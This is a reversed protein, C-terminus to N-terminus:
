KSRRKSDKSKDHSINRLKLKIKPLPQEAPVEPPVESPDSPVGVSVGVGGRSKRRKNTSKPDLPDLPPHKHESANTSHGLNPSEHQGNPDQKQYKQNKNQKHGRQHKHMIPVPEQHDDPDGEEEDDFLHPNNVKDTADHILTAYESEDQAVGDKIMKKMLESEEKQAHSSSSSTASLDVQDFPSISKDISVRHVTNLTNSLGDFYIENVNLNKSPDLNKQKLNQLSSMGEEDQEVESLIEGCKLAAGDQSTYEKSHAIRSHNLFGQASSFNSRNCDPCTLKVIVGDTRRYLCGLSASPKSISTSPRLSSTTSRTRYSYKPEGAYGEELISAKPNHSGDPLGSLNSYNASLSRNLLNYYKVTFDNPENELSVLSPVEFFKRLTIMQSECKGIEEKTLSLEKHKLRIELDIQNTIIDRLKEIPTDQLRKILMERDVAMTEQSTEEDNNHEIPEQVRQEQPAVQGTEEMERRPIDFDDIHAEPTPISTPSMDSMTNYLLERSRKKGYRQMKNILM